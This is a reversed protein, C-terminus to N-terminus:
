SRLEPKVGRDSLWNQIDNERWAVARKSLKIPKPFEGDKMMAYITSRSLGVSAIVSPLRLVRTHSTQITM